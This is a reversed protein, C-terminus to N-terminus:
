RHRAPDNSGRHERSAPSLKNQLLGRVPLSLALATYIVALSGNSVREEWGPTLRKPVAHYDILYALAAVAGGGILARRADGRDAAEGFLREYLVAWFISAGANLALGPLTHKVDAARVNSAAPGWVIHSVANIAAMASGSERAGCAAAAGATAAAAISGSTIADGFTRKWTNHARRPMLSTNM